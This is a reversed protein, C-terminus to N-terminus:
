KNKELIYYFSGPRPNIENLTLDPFREKLRDETDSDKGTLIVIFHNTKPQIQDFNQWSYLYITNPLNLNFIQIPLRDLPSHFPGFSSVIFKEEETPLARILTSIDALNAEFSSAVIPQNAWFFFYKIPNFLGIFILIVAMWSFYWIKKYISNLKGIKIFLYEFALAAFIFVVPLTGISRLSHPNGEASFFEPSLMLFFWLVLFIYIEIKSGRWNKRFLKIIQFLSFILGFLFAIGTLPDLIPYPPYNHRWNQDGWFNYKVLSLFISRSLTQWPHGHNASPSFVSIYDIPGHLYDTHSVIDILIPLAVILTTLIFILIFNKYEKIFNKRTLMLVPLFFLLIFPAVRWAVYTHAGLGFILGSLAMQWYSKNKLAKFLFLFSFILIFPLMNARFTIRGFNFSWFAVATLFASLLGVRRSDSQPWYQDALEKALFYMGPLALFSFLAGPFRLTLPSIGFLKFDLAIINMFLGERGENGPYFLAYHNSFAAKYADEGNFAEDTFVGPPLTSLHYFRLFLGIALIFFLISIYIIKKNQM